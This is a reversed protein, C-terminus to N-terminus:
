SKSQKRPVTAFPDAFSAKHQFQLVAEPHFDGLDSSKGHESLVFIM